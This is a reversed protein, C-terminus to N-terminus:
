SAAVNAYISQYLWKEMNKYHPGKWYIRGCGTCLYFEHYFEKTKEFLLHAITDKEVFSLPSNCCTCRTFPRISRNLDFRNLVELLQKKPNTERVWYGYIVKGRKLLGIDRTMLVRNTEGSISALRVDDYSPDLLTDFGLFRMYVALRRLHVDLLFQIKSLPLPRVRTMSSIDISQFIPYVSIRDNEQVRYSFDVSQGNVLILDVEAHPVGLAEILDKVSTRGHLPHFFSISRKEQSLFDNLEAYFRLEIQRM